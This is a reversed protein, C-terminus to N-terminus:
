QREKKEKGSRQDGSQGQAAAPAAFPGGPLSQGQVTSGQRATSVTVIQGPRLRDAGDVVVYQGAKLGGELITFQGEALAVRV